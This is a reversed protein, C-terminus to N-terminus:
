GRERWEDTGNDDPDDDRNGAVITATAGPPDSLVPRPPADFFVVWPDSEALRRFTEAHNALTRGHAARVRGARAGPADAPPTHELEPWGLALLGLAYLGVPSLARTCPEGGITSRM